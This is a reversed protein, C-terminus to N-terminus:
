LFLLFFYSNILVIPQSSSLVMSNPSYTPNKLFYNNLVIVWMTQLSYHTPPPPSFIFFRSKHSNKEIYMNKKKYLKVLM